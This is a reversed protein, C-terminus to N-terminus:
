LSVMFVPAKALTSASTWQICLYRYLKSDSISRVAERTPPHLFFLPSWGNETTIIASSSPGASPRVAIILSAAAMSTSTVRPEVGVFLSSPSSARKELQVSIWKEVGEGIDEIM